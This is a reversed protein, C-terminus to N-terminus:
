HRRYSTTCTRHACRVDLDIPMINYYLTKPKVRVVTAAATFFFFFVVNRIIFEPSYTTRKKWKKKKEEKITIIESCFFVTFPKATAFIDVPLKIEFPRKRLKPCM